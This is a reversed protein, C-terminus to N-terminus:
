EYEMSKAINIMQEETLTSSNMEIYTDNQTWRLIGGVPNENNISSKFSSYYGKYGNLNLEKEDRVIKELNGFVKKEEIGFMLFKDNKDMYHLRFDKINEKENWPYTKIDLTWDSPIDQPTLFRLIM